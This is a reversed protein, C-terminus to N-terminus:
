GNYSKKYVTCNSQDLDFSSLYKLPETEAQTHVSFNEHNKKCNYHLVEQFSSSVCQFSKYCLVTCSCTEMCDKSM